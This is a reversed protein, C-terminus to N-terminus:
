LLLRTKNVIFRLSPSIKRWVLATVEFKFNLSFSLCPSFLIETRCYSHRFELNLTDSCYTMTQVGVTHPTVASDNQHIVHETAWEALRNNKEQQCGLIFLYNPCWIVQCTTHSLMKSAVGYIKSLPLSPRKLFSNVTCHHVTTYHQLTCYKYRM